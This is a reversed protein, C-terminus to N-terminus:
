FRKGLKNDESEKEKKRGLCVLLCFKCGGRETYYVKPGLVKVPFARGGASGGVTDDLRIEEGKNEWDNGRFTEWVRLNVGEEDSSSSSIVDVRLPAFGHSASHM